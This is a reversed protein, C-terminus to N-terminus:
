AESEKQILRILEEEESSPVERGGPPLGLMPAIALAKFVVDTPKDQLWPPTTGTAESFNRLMEFRQLRHIVALVDADPSCARMYLDIGIGFHEGPHHMQLEHQMDWVSKLDAPDVIPVLVADKMWPVDDFSAALQVARRKLSELAPNFQEQM